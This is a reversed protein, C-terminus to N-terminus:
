ANDTLWRHLAHFSDFSGIPHLAELPGPPHAGYTVAIGSVSANIAMQLDHTTDGIMVTRSGEADLTEMIELLMQPHPKSFCEDACRTQDFFPRLGTRDMARELGRRSKGTAVALQYGQQSLESIGQTVGPFLEIEHDRSLFHHKYRDALALHFDPTSGPFLSEVAEGLGLGIVYRADSDEPPPVGLDESAAQISRVIASASDVLTGDWDFVILDFRRQM